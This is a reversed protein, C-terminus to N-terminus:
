GNSSLIARSDGVNACFIHAGIILILVATSGCKNAVYNNKFETYFSEDLVNFSKTLANAVCENFKGRKTGYIGYEQDLINKRIEAELNERLFVACQVGGHGDLVSFISVPLHVHLRM